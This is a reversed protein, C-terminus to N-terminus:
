LTRSKGPALAHWDVHLVVLSARRSTSWSLSRYDWRCAVSRVLRAGQHKRGLEFLVTRLVRLDVCGLVGELDFEASWFGFALNAEVRQAVDLAHLSTEVGKQSSTTSRSERLSGRM